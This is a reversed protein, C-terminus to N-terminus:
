KWQPGNGNGNANNKGLPSAPNEPGFFIPPNQQNNKVRWKECTQRFTINVIRIITTEDM